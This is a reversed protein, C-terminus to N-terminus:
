LASFHMFAFVRRAVLRRLSHVRSDEVDAFNVHVDDM